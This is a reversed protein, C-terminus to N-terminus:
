VLIHGSLKELFNPLTEWNIVVLYDVAFFEESELYITKELRYMHTSLEGGGDNSVVRLDSPLSSKLVELMRRQYKKTAGKNM